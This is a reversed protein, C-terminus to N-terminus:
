KYAKRIEKWNAPSIEVGTKVHHDIAWAYDQFQKKLSGKAIWKLFAPKTLYNFRIQLRTKEKGIDELDFNVWTYGAEIPFGKAEIVEITLHKNELDWEALNDVLYKKRNESMYMIRKSNERVEKHGEVFESHYCNPNSRYVYQFDEAVVKWVDELPAQIDYSVTFSAMKSRKKLDKREVKKQSAIKDPHPKGQ